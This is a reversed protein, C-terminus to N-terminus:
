WMFIFSLLSSGIPHEREKHRRQPNKIAGKILRRIVRSIAYVLNYIFHGFISKEAMKIKM